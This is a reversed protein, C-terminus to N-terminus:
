RSRRWWPCSSARRMPSSPSPSVSSATPAETHADPLWTHFPVLPVKVAFSAFFGLFLLRQTGLSFPTGLLQEYDFTPGGSAAFYVFLIAVLMLLSGTLTFLFFKMAAYIRRGYGWMGILFYMPVLTVEWFIYFLFLDLSCFVGLMGTELILLFVFYPKIRKDISWSALVGLPMLFTSLMVMWLSVGDIGTKYSVGWAPIWEMTRGLQFGAKSADFNLLVGLSFTFAVLTTVLAVTRVMAANSKPVVAVLLAGVFPTLITLELWPWDSV